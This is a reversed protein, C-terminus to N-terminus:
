DDIEKGCYPCENGRLANNDFERDCYSCKLWTGRRIDDETITITDGYRYPNFAFLRENNGGSVYYEGDFGYDNMTTEIEKVDWYGDAVISAAYEDDIILKAM